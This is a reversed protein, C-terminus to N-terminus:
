KCIISAGCSMYKNDKYKKQNSVLKYIICVRCENYMDENKCALYSCVHPFCNGDGHIHVPVYNQPADSPLHHLAIYDIRNKDTENLYQDCTVQLPAIPNSHIYQELADYDRTMHMQQLRQQWTPSLTTQLNSIVTRWIRWNPKVSKRNQM